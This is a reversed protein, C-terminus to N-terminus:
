YAERLSALFDQMALDDPVAKLYSEALRTAKDQQGFERSLYAYDQLFEPNDILEKSINDFIQLAKEAQDLAQYAKAINWKTIVHDIDDHELAVVEEYRDQDLYLTSLRMTVEEDDLAVQKAKKLYVESSEADHLEFALQSALLLLQSDFENKRLGQQVLRLAEQTQHDQHLSLGYIYEYGPFDANMTELQKFYLNAKQYDAQDYLITALEFVAEDEYEIAIAKELFEIAAEFKGLNAYARGIRQYTSIGTLNLIHRNDLKAYQEIAEKFHDLAMEIEALGFIVLPEQSIQTAKLMKERAVDTLGEMDYLDAMVLLASLYDPSDPTIRDLYLFAEEIENDEASIQALNINVEPYDQCLQLYITKAQPLFGISELYEALTLLSEADDEKLAKKFYKEAHKLDQQDISAIMKESNLM